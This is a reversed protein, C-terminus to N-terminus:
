GQNQKAIKASFIDKILDNPINPKGDLSGAKEKIITWPEGPAHTANSLQIGSFGKHSEWVSRIFDQLGPDDVTPTRSTLKGGDFSFRTLRDTVPARGFRRTQNYVERVVPGWPWAGVDEEFLPFGRLALHWAHAYFVLKQLKMQDIPMGAESGLKLFENAVAAASTATGLAENM